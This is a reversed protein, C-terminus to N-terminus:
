AVIIDGPEDYPETSGKGNAYRTVTNGTAPNLLVLQCHPKAEPVYAVLKVPCGSRFKLAHGALAVAIDFGAARPGALEFRELSFSGKVENLDCTFAGARAVTYIRGPELRDGCQRADICRVQQGPYLDQKM